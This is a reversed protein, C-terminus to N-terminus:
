GVLEGSKPVWPVVSERSMSWRWLNTLLGSATGGGGARGGGGHALTGSMENFVSSSTSTIRQLNFYLLLNDIITTM